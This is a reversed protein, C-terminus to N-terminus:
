LKLVMHIDDITEGGLRFQDPTTGVAEFGMSQYLAIAPANHGFVWLEVWVLDAQARAFDIAQQILRRGLGLGRYAREIGISLTCRHLASRLRDGRLDLHGVIEGGTDEIVFGRQWGPHNLPLQLADLSPGSPGENADAVYPLFHNGGLGSEAKHRTFHRCVAQADEAQM